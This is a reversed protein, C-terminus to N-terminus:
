CAVRTVVLLVMRVHVFERSITGILGLDLICELEILNRFYENNFKLPTHTWPGDFGSRSLHCRGVTHAGSLAVIDKDDFGQRYFVDRLHQAGQAADPLRGQLGM